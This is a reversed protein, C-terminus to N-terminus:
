PDHRCDRGAKRRKAQLEARSDCSLRFARLFGNDEHIMVAGGRSKVKRWLRRM